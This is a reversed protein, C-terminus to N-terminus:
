GHRGSHLHQGRASKDSESRTASADVEHYLAEYADIARKWSFRAARTLGAKRLAAAREPSSILSRVQDAIKLPQDPPAYLVADEGVERLAPIASAVVPTGCAMAELVPWGFGEAFSPFVLVDAANYVEVLRQDDVKSLERVVGRLGLRKCLERETGGLPAGAIVIGADVGAQRLAHLAELTAAVNKYFIGTGAHLLLHTAGLGLEDRAAAVREASLPRFRGDVGHHIARVRSEDVGALRIVDQRSAESPCVIAAVRRLDAVTARFRWLYWRPGDYPITGAQALLPIMDHRTIVTRAAPLWRAVPGNDDVLHFVDAKLRRVAIPQRIWRRAYDDLKGLGPVGALRGPSTTFPSVAIERDAFGFALAATYRATSLHTGTQVLRVRLRESTM